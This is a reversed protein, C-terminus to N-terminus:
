MENINPYTLCIRDNQRNFDWDLAERENAEIWRKGAGLPYRSILAMEENRAPYYFARHESTAVKKIVLKEKTEGNEM